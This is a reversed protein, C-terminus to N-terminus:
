VPPTGINSSSYPNYITIAKGSAGSAIFRQGYCDLLDNDCGDSKKKAAEMAHVRICENFKKTAAKKVGHMLINEAAIFPLKETLYKKIMKSYVTVDNIIKLTLSLIADAALFAEPIIIRRNASDNIIRHRM